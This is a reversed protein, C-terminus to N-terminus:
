EEKNEDASAEVEIGTILFESMSDWDRERIHIIREEYEEITIIGKDKLLESIARTRIWNMMSAQYTGTLVTWEPIEDPNIEKLEISFNVITRENLLEKYSSSSTGKKVKLEVASEPVEFNFVNGSNLLKNVLHYNNEGIVTFEFEIKRAGDEGHIAFNIAEFKVEDIIVIMTIGGM